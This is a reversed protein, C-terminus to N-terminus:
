EHGTRRDWRDNLFDSFSGSSREKKASSKMATASWNSSAMVLGWLMIGFGVIGFAIYHTIAAVLLVSLGVVTTLAGAILRRPSVKGSEVARKAATEGSKSMRAALKADDEYLARELEELVKREQESLGM